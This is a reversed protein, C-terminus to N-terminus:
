TDLCNVDVPVGCLSIFCPPREEYLGLKVFVHLSSFVTLFYRTKYATPFKIVIQNDTESPPSPWIPTLFSIYENYYAFWEFKPSQNFWAAASFKRASAFAGDGRNCTRGGILLFYSIVSTHVTIYSHGQSYSVVEAVYQCDKCTRKLLIDSVTTTLTVCPSRLPRFIM